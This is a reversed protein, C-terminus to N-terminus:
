LPVRRPTARLVPHRRPLPQPQPRGLRLRPGPDPRPRAPRLRSGPPPHRPRRRAGLQHGGGGLLPARRAARGLGRGRGRRPHSRRVRPRGAEPVPGVDRAPPPRAGSGPA